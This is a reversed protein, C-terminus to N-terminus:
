MQKSRNHAISHITFGVWVNGFESDNKMCWIKTSTRWGFKTARLKCVAANRIHIKWAAVLLMISEFKGVQHWHVDFCFQWRRSDFKSHFEFAFLTYKWKISMEITTSQYLLIWVVSVLAITKKLCFCDLWMHHSNVRWDLCRGTKRKIGEANGGQIRQLNMHEIRNACVFRNIKEVQRCM